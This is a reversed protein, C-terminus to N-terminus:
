VSGGRRAKTPYQRCEQGLFTTGGGSNKKFFFPVGLTECQQQLSLAWEEKMERKGTGTEAGCIVWDLALRQWSPVIANLRVEGLMPEVSVFHKIAPVELLVPIREEAWTQNEATVGLWINKKPTNCGIHGYYHKLRQPRKTLIIYTHWSAIAMMSFVFDIWEVPVEEHFLDGMSCVFVKKPRKWELPKSLVHEHLTIDFPKDKTYGFRGALRNSMRRAYCNKCGESIPSCGTIPNWTEEAWEIKTVM